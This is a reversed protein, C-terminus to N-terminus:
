LQIVEGCAPCKISKGKDSTADAEAVNPNEKSEDFFSTVDTKEIGAFDFGFEELGFEDLAAIEDRLLDIDWDAYESAKNDLLRFARIQEPTMDTAFMVPLEEMGIIRAAKLRTEGCIVENSTPDSLLLPQRFGYQQIIKALKHAAEDNRRPNNEYIRISDTKVYVIQLRDNPTQTKREM